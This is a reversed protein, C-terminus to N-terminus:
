VVFRSLARLAALTCDHCIEFEKFDLALASLALRRGAGYSLMLRRQVTVWAFPLWGVLFTSEGRKGHAFGCWYNRGASKGTTPRRAVSATHPSTRADSGQWDHKFGVLRPHWAFRGDPGHQTGRASRQDVAKRRRFM